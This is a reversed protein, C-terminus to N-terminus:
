VAMTASVCSGLSSSMAKSSASGVREVHAGETRRAVLARSLLSQRLVEVQGLRLERVQVSRDAQAQPRLRGRLDGYRDRGLNDLALIADGDAIWGGHAAACHWSDGWRVRVQM